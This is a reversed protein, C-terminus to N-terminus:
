TESLIHAIGSSRSENFEPYLGFRSALESVTGEGKLTELAVKAKFEPHHQKRTSM